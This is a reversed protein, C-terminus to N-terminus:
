IFWINFRSNEYVKYREEPLSHFFRSYYTRGYAFYTGPIDNNEIAFQLDYRNILNRPVEYCETGHITAWDVENEWSTFGDKGSIESVEEAWDIDYPIFGGTTKYRMFTATNYTHDLDPPLQGYWM